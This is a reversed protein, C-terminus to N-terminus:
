HPTSVWCVVMITEEMPEGTEGIEGEREWMIEQRWQRQRGRRDGARRGEQRMEYRRDRSDGARQRRGIEGTDEWRM